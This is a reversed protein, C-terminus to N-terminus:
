GIVALRARPRQGGGEGGRGEGRTHLPFVRCGGRGGARTAGWARPRADRVEMAKKANAATLTEQLYKPVDMLRMAM